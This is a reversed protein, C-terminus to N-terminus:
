KPENKLLNTLKMKTNTRETKKTKKKLDTKIQTKKTPTVGSVSVVVIM